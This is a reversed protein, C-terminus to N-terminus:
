EESGCEKRAEEDNQAKGGKQASNENHHNYWLIASM